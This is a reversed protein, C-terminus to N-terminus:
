EHPQFSWWEKLFGQIQTATEVLATKDPYFVIEYYDPFWRILWADFRDGQSAFAVLVEEQGVSLPEAGRKFELMLFRHAWQRNHMLFKGTIFGDIDTFSSGRHGIGAFLDDFHNSIADPYKRLQTM